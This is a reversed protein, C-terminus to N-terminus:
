DVLYRALLVGLLFSAWCLVLVLGVAEGALRDNKIRREIRIESLFSVGLFSVAVIFLITGKSM